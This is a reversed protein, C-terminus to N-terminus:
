NFTVFFPSDIYGDPIELVVSVQATRDTCSFSTLVGLEVRPVVLYFPGIGNNADLTVTVNHPAFPLNAFCYLGIGHSMTTGSMNYSNAEDITGDESVHAYALPAPVLAPSEPPMCGTDRLVIASRRTRCLVAAAAPTVFTLLGALLMIAGM